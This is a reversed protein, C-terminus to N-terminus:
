YECGNLRSVRVSLLEKLRQPVEGPGMVARLAAAFAEAIPARHGAVRFLNPVKGRQEIFREFLM